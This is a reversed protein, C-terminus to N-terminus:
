FLLLSLLLIKYMLACLTKCKVCLRGDNIGISTFSLVTEEVTQMELTLQNKEETRQRITRTYTTDGHVPQISLRRGIGSYEMRVGYKGADLSERPDEM